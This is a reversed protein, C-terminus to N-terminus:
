SNLFICVMYRIGAICFSYRITMFERVQLQFQASVNKFVNGTQHVVAQVPFPLVLMIQFAHLENM